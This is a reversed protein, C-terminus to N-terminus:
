IAPIQNILDVEINYPSSEDLGCKNKISLNSKDPWGTILYPSLL